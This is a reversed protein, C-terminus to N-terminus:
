DAALVSRPRGSVLENGLRVAGAGDLACGDAGVRLWLRPAVNFPHGGVLVPLDATSPDARLEAITDAMERIHHSMAMSLAVLDAGTREAESVISTAPTCAGIFRVDWGDLAFLDSVMRMGISHREKGICACAVTRARRSTPHVASMLEAMVRETIASSGHEQGVGLRGLYWLRGIELQAPAIVRLYVDWLSTGSDIEDRLARVARAADCGLVAALYYAALGGYPRDLDVLSEGDLEYLTKADSAHDIFAAALPGETEPLLRLLTARMDEVSGTLWEAPLRHNDFLQRAWEFYEDYLVQEDAWLAASLFQLHWRTDQVAKELQAITLSEYLGPWREAQLDITSAILSGLTREITDSATVGTAAM